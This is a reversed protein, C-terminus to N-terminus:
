NLLDTVDYLATLSTLGAPLNVFELKKTETMARRRWELMLSVAATDVNSVQAFDVVTNQALEMGKSKELLTNASDMNIGGIVTWRNENQSIETM